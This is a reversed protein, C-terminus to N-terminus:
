RSIPESSNELNRTWRPRPRSRARADAEARAAVAVDPEGQDLVLLPDALGDAVEAPAQGLEASRRPQPADDARLLAATSTRAASRGPLAAVLNAFVLAGVAVLVVSVAPVTPHPVANISGAFLTWLERGVLIGLPVGIVAGVRGGVTAQWSVATALQRSTFGLTKLLALDRRRRRVSAILTMALAAVAGVALGAALLLPTNGITRYNVIQAPRQPGLLEVTADQAHPDKALLRNAARVVARLNALGATAPVSAKLRVFALDPGDLNKDPNLLARQMALPVVSTPLLAGTGMATHDAVVTAYGIAPFTATGVILLRTPPIYVPASRPAGYTLTVYQGVRKHLLALTAAGLVVEHSNARDTGRSSRRSSEDRRRSSCCPCTSTTSRCTRTARAASALSTPTTPSPTMM